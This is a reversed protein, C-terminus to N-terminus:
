VHARGIKAEAYLTEPAVDIEDGWTLTGLEKNVHFDRFFTQDRFRSFVGGRKLYPAFDVIGRGGDDFTVEIRYNGQYAASVIDHIM